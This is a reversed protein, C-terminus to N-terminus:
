QGADSDMNRDSVRVEQFQLVDFDCVQIAGSGAVHTSTRTMSVSVYRLLEGQEGAAATHAPVCATGPRSSAHGASFVIM